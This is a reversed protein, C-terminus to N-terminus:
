YDITVKQYCWWGKTAVDVNDPDETDETVEDWDLSYWIEDAVEASWPHGPQVHIVWVTNRSTPGLERSTDVVAVVDENEDTLSYFCGTRLFLGTAAARALARASKYRRSRDAYM